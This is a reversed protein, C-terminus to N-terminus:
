RKLYTTRNITDISSLILRLVNKSVNSYEYDQVVDTSPGQELTTRVAHLILGRNIPSKILIGAETGEPREHVDRIMVAPFKLIAAEETITGSDSLVCKSSKQLHIYDHFGLPKLWRVGDRIRVGHLKELRKSTRPHTSVIVPCNFEENLLNLTEILEALKEADDVNEERHSSVVFYSGTKLGLTEIIKSAQIQEAFRSLVETMCSGTKIVRDPPLGEALLLRRAHETLPMNVDSLHDVIKRNVEEPVRNDFCRNGAEM